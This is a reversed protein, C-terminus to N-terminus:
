DKVTQVGRVNDSAKSHLKIKESVPFGIPRTPGLWIIFPRESIKTVLLHAPQRLKKVTQLHLGIQNHGTRQRSGRLRCLNRRLLQFCLQPFVFRELGAKSDALQPSKEFPM